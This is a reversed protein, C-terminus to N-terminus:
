VLLCINIGLRVKRNCWTTMGRCVPLLGALSGVAGPLSGSFSNNNIKLFQLKMCAGLEGPLPQLTQQITTLVFGPGCTKSSTM